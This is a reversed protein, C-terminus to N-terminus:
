QNIMLRLVQQADGANVHMIYMGAPLGNYNVEKRENGNVTFTGVAKGELSYITVAANVAFTNEITFVGSSPNPYNNLIHVSNVSSLGTAKAAQTVHIVQDICGTTVIVDASREAGTNEEVSIELVGDGTGNPDDFGIWSADTSASWSTNSTISVDSSGEDSIFTFTDEAVSFTHVIVLEKTFAVRGSSSGVFGKFVVKWNRGDKAKIFYTLSDTVDYAFTGMNLQKWDWGIEAINASMSVTDCIIALSDPIGTVEGTKVGKNTLIGTVPYYVPPTTPQIGNYRTLMFDWDASAPERDKVSDTQLSLYAFNKGTYDASKIEINQENSGDLNAYRINWNGLTKNLVWVKKFIATTAGTKVSVVFLRNGTIVHNSPNYIGWGYDMMGSAHTNFSGKDWNDDANDLPTWTSFGATDLTAWQSTDSGFEYVVASGVGSSSTNANSRIAVNSMGIGFALQWDNNVIEKVKGNQLSYYVDNVYSAGTRITDAVPQAFSSATLLITTIFLLPIKRM